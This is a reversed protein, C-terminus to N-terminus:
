TLRWLFSVAIVAVVVAGLRKCIHEIKADPTPLELYFWLWVCFVGVGYGVALAIGSLLGQVAFHRPLLSPTLSAAFFLTAVVLGVYSLSGWSSQLVHRLRSPLILRSITAMVLLVVCTRHYPLAILIGCRVM